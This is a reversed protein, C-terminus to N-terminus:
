ITTVVSKLPELERFTGRKHGVLKEVAERLKITSNESFFMRPRLILFATINNDGEGQTHLSRCLKNLDKMLCFTKCARMEVPLNGCEQDKQKGLQVVWFKALDKSNKSHSAVTNLILPYLDRAAAPITPALLDNDPHSPSPAESPQPCIILVRGAAKTREALWRVPGLEAIKGQQWMDVAVSCGGHMQLFEALAVVARQFILNEAPYVLLVSVPVTTSTQLMKFGLLVALNAGSNYAICCSTIILIVALGGFTVELATTFHIKNEDAPPKGSSTKTVSVTVDDPVPDDKLQEVAKKSDM